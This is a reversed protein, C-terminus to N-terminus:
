GAESARSLRVPTTAGDATLEGVWEEGSPRLTLVADGGRQEIRLRAGEATREGDLLGTGEARGAAARWAGEVPAGAQDSLQLVLLEVGQDTKVAWAGDLAGRRSQAAQYNGRVRASWAEPAMGPSPNDPRDSASRPAAAPAPRGGLASYPVPGAPLAQGTLLAAVVVTIM